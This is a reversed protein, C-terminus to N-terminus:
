EGDESNLAGNRLNKLAMKRPRKGQNYVKGSRYFNMLTTAYLHTVCCFDFVHEIAPWM